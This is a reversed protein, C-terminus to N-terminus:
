YAIVSRIVEGAKMARFGDNIDPLKITRSVMLNLDLQGTEAFRILRPFELTVQSSGYLSGRIQKENLIMDRIPLEFSASSLGVGVVVGRKRAMQYAQGFTVANGTVEIAVDVGRGDTIEKVSAVPDNGDRALVGHTAGLKAAVDLKSQVTDVAVITTAGAIRAGQIASQGVGGCGLIAVSNGPRIGATNISAGMGTTVGCGILALQEVPLDTNVKLVVQHPLVAAESFTSLGSGFRTGDVRSYRGSNAGGLGGTMGGGWECHQQEGRICHWCTGCHPVFSAVIRDGTELGPVNSGVAEITGAGEHGLIAPGPLESEMMNLDSHCLGSAGYRVLVEGPGPDPNFELEEIALDQNQKLFVAGKVKM